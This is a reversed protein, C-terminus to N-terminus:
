SGCCVDATSTFPSLGVAFSKFALVNDDKRIIVIRASLMAKRHRDSNGRAFDTLSM